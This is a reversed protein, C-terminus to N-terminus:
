GFLGSIDNDPPSQPSRLSRSKRIEKDDKEQEEEALKDVARAVRELTRRPDNQAHRAMKELLCDLLPLVSLPVRRNVTPEGYRGQRRIAPRKRQKEDMQEGLQILPNCSVM